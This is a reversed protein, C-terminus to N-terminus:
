AEVEVVQRRAKVIKVRGGMVEALLTVKDRDSWQVVGVLDMGHGDSVRVMQGRQLPPLTQAKEPLVASGGPGYLEILKAVFAEELPTAEYLERVGPASKISGWRGASQDFQAFLWGPFLPQLVQRKDPQHLPLFTQFGRQTLHLIALLEGRPATQLCYWRLGKHRSAVETAVAPVEKPKRGAGARIGGSNARPGGHRLKSIEARPAGHSGCEPHRAGPAVSPVSHTAPLTDCASNEGSVAECDSVDIGM